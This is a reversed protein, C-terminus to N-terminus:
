LWLVISFQVLELTSDGMGGGGPNGLAQLQRPGAQCLLTLVGASWVV